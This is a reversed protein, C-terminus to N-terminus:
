LRCSKQVVLEFLCSLKIWCILVIRFGVPFAATTTGSLTRNSPPAPSIMRLFSNSVVSKCVMRRRGVPMKVLRTYLCIHNEEILTGGAWLTLCLFDPDVIKACINVKRKTLMGHRVSVQLIENLAIMRFVTVFACFCPWLFIWFAAPASERYIFNQFSIFGAQINEPQLVLRKGIQVIERDGFSSAASIISFKCLARSLKWSNIPCSFFFSQVPHSCLDFFELFSFRFLSASSSTWISWSSFLYGIEDWKLLVPRLINKLLSVIIQACCRISFIVGFMNSAWICSFVDM